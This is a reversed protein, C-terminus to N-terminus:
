SKSPPAGFGGGGPTKIVLVDGAQMKTEAVSALQETTGDRREVLNIGTLANAGGALGFPAVTRHNSLIAASMAARFELRRVVGDGGSYKGAGGSGRRIAFERVLIPYRSELVEADTIRSNTMHTQVASAGAFGPGAGAGGCITEYYQLKADGFSLNNMTGQSAALQGLAGYLADTICQSTEVNGGVVAAPHRPNLMCGAPITLRLPRRCGANLPIDAAVLTRFVYMVAAQCVSAPANLNNEAAPSTGSFDIHALRATADITVAVCIRQGNDFPYTFSGDRIRGSRGLEDIVCRVSEEANNLTHEAYAHVTTQGYRRIMELLLKRGRENAAIQAKCDAINGDPDRAPHSADLLREKLAQERFRGDEVLLFNDFVVGEEDIHKSAPPMSGPSIGGIDAHHARSALLFLLTGEKDAVPSVVTLDPLHTGGNYPANCLYVNGAALGDRHEKLLAKVTDDMSGLHVPIHPANAILNGAPSFIACSFDLREKINVSRATNQLVIGMEEAIYMFHNSFIELLVPDPDTGSQADKVSTETHTLLLQLADNVRLEWGPDVVTTGTQEIVMAPGVLKAGPRLENRDYVPISLLADGARMQEYTMARIQAGGYQPIATPQSVSPAQTAVEVRLSEIVLNIKEPMFGFRARHEAAFNKPLANLSDYPLSIATDSGELKLELWISTEFPTDAQVQAQLSATCEDALARALRDAEDMVAGSLPRNLAHQRYAKIPAAGMGWASLVGALPDLLIRKTGLQEAVQCAHQGGAGGFCCLTFDRPNLGRQISIHGLAHAMNNVAVRLFGQATEAASYHQRTAASIEGALQAFAQEVCAEDLPQNADPGFTAPFYRAQIRGLLLNADTVTLPGGRGYCMPGPDAGASEPGVQFRGNVFKLVSGGGAAITHIRIMPTRLQIGAISTENALEPRGAYVSVDTSTGGMDFGILQELGAKSAAAGMGVVGGAPGSLVSDKGRFMAASVLGGNSQMFRIRECDIGRASLANQFREVYNRLVPSLYADAVTTEGRSVLKILPSVEHSASIDTYGMESAIQMARIEHAPNNWAHMFCIAVARIGEAHWAHLAARIDQEDLSSIVTGDAAIRETVEASLTYLPEPLRIHLAFIRPRNQYRIRLADGFGRTILLGTKIGARELLANTAVTTGMRIEDVKGRGNARALIRHIGEAAADDYHTANDSLLKLSHLQENPARGIVDTFTGGRDVWFQWGKTAM